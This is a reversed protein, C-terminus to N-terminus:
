AVLINELDDLFPFLFTVTGYILVMDNETISIHVIFGCKVTNYFNIFSCSVCIM